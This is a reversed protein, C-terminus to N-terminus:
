KQWFPKKIVHPIQSPVIIETKKGLEPYSQLNMNQGMPAALTQKQILKVVGQQEETMPTTSDDSKGISRNYLDTGRKDLVLNKISNSTEEYAGPRADFYHENANIENMKRQTTYVPKGTYSYGTIIEKDLPDKKKLFNFIGGLQYKYIISM